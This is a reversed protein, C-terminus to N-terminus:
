QGRVCSLEAFDTSKRHYFTVHTHTLLLLEYRIEIVGASLVVMKCDVSGFKKSDLFSSACAENSSALSMYFIEGQFGIGLQGSLPTASASKSVRFSFAKNTQNKTLPDDGKPCMMQVHYCNSNTILKAPALLVHFCCSTSLFTM